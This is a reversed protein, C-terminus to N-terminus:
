VPALVLGSSSQRATRQGISLRPRFPGALGTSSGSASPHAIHEPVTYPHRRPSSGIIGDSPSETFRSYASTSRTSRSPSSTANNGGTLPPEPSVALNSPGCVSQGPRQRPRNCRGGSPAHHNEIAHHPVIRPPAAGEIQIVFRIFSPARASPLELPLSSARKDHPGHRDDVPEAPQFQPSSRAPRPPPPAGPAANSAQRQTIVHELFRHRDPLFFVKFIRPRPRRLPMERLFGRGPARRPLRACRLQSQLMEGNLNSIGPIM